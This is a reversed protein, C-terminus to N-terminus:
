FNGIHCPNVYKQRKEEKHKPFLKREPDRENRLLKHSLVFM